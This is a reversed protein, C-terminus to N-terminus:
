PQAESLVYVGDEFGDSLAAPNYTVTMREGDLVGTATWDGSAGDPTWFSFHRIDGDVQFHGSWRAFGGRVSVKQHDFTGDEYLVLRTLSAGNNAFGERDYM